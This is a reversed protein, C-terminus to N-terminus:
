ARTSTIASAIRGVSANDGPSDSIHHFLVRGDKAIVLVGGQQMNDGRTLGQRFGRGLARISRGAAAVSLFTAIGRKLQAAQYVALSPDTYLPGTYGTVERFGAIFSPGGNGIVNLSAGAREIEAIGHHLQVVHERCHM